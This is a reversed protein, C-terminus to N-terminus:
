HTTEDCLDSSETALPPDQPPMVASNPDPETSTTAPELSILSQLFADECDQENSIELSLSLTLLYLKEPAEESSTPDSPIALKFRLTCPTSM